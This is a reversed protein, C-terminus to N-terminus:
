SADMTDSGTGSKWGRSRRAARIGGAIALARRTAAVDHTRVIDAGLYVAIATAALGGELRQDAPLDLRRGLFSKRSVGIVIPRGPERLEGLRALLELNHALGKGFGIGPDIAIRDGSIGAALARDVRDRLHELVERTVDGYHPDLQMTAPDGQIHMIVLGAGHRAVVGAMGPDGLGTVDNVVQVGAGLARDAVEASATDVSLCPSGGTALRELVPELRRWQEAAPVPVSNPRTSEAGLDVLAAGEAALERVRAAAAEPDLHRGGDSFSDPTVNVIGMMLPGEDLDFSRDRCRWIM